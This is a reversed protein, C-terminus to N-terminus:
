FGFTSTDRLQIGKQSRNVCKAEAAEQLLSNWLKECMIHSVVQGDGSVTFFYEGSSKRKGGLSPCIEIM